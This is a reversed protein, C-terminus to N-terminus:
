RMNVNLQVQQGEPDHYESIPIQTDDGIHFKIVEPPINKLVPPLGADAVIIRKTNSSMYPLAKGDLRTVVTVSIFCTKKDEHIPLLYATQSLRGETSEAVELTSLDLETGSMEENEDCEFIKSSEKFCVNFIAL